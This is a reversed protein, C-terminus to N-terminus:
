GQGNWNSKGIAALVSCNNITNGSIVDQSKKENESKRL